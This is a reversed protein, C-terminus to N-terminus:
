DRRRNAIDLIDDLERKNPAYEGFIGALVIEVKRFEELYDRPAPWPAGTHARRANANYLDKLEKAWVAHRAPGVSPARRAFTERLRERRTRNLEADRVLDAVVRIAEGPIEQMMGDGASLELLGLPKWLDAIEQIRPGYGPDGGPKGIGALAPIEDVLVRISHAVFWAFGPSQIDSAILRRAGDYLDALSPETRDLARFISEQIGSREPLESM